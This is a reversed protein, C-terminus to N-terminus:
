RFPFVVKLIKVNLASLFDVKSRLALLASINVEDVNRVRAQSEGLFDMFPKNRLELGSQFGVAHENGLSGNLRLPFLGVLRLGSGVASGEGSNVIGDKFVQEKGSGEDTSSSSVSDIAAGDSFADQVLVLLFDDFVLEIGDSVDELLDGGLVDDKLESLFLVEVGDLLLNTLEAFFLRLNSGPKFSRV